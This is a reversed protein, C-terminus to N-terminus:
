ARVYWARLPPYAVPEHCRGSLTRRFQMGTDPDELLFKRFLTLGLEEKYREEWPMANTDMVNLENEGMDHGRAEAMFYKRM